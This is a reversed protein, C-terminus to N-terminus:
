LCTSTYENIIWPLVGVMLGIVFILMAERSRTVAWLLLGALAALLSWPDSLALWMPLVQCTFFPRIGIWAFVVDLVCAVGVLLLIIVLLNGAVRLVSSRSHM